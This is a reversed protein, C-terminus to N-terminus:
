YNQNDDTHTYYGRTHMQVCRLCNIQKNIWKIKWVHNKKTATAKKKRKKCVSVCVDEQTNNLQNVLIDHYIQKINEHIYVTCLKKKWERLLCQM